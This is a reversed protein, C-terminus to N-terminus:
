CAELQLARRLAEPKRPRQSAAARGPLRRVIQNAPDPHGPEVGAYLVSIM